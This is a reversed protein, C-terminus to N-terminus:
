GTFANIYRLFLSELFPMTTVSLFSAAIVGLVVIGLIIAKTYDQGVLSGVLTPERSLYASAAYYEDGIITYDCAAIFFPIQTIQPTGAVQIAGVHQGNEALILAEAFFDGFYFASAVRERNLIGVVGSTYAFQNDSLFRVDDRNFAEPAGEAEYSDRVTEEAVTYLVSDATPVIIRSRYRAAIKIIHSLISLAQLTVINLVAVGPSFLMPRGMETARGVAEDIASLGPIRRIFLNRGRRASFIKYLVLLVLAGEILIITLDAHQM